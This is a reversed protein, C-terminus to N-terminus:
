SYSMNDSLQELFWTKEALEPESEIDTRLKDYQELERVRLLKRYCKGFNRFRERTSKATNPSTRIMSSLTRLHTSITTEDQRAQTPSLHFYAMLMLAQAHFRHYDKRFQIQYFQSIMESYQQRNFRILGINFQISEEKEDPSLIESFKELYEQAKEIESIRISMAILNKLISGPLQGERLLKKERIAQLTYDIAQQGDHRQNSRAFRRVLQNYILAYVASEIELPCDIQWEEWNLLLSDLAESDGQIIRMLIAILNMWPPLSEISFSRIKQLIRDVAQDSSYPFKSVRSITLKALEFCYALELQDEIQDLQSAFAAPQGKGSQQQILQLATLEIQIESFGPASSNRSSSKNLRRRAKNFENRGLKKAIVSLLIPNRYQTQQLATERILFKETERKLKEALRNLALQDFPKTPFIKNWILDIDPFSHNSSPAGEVFPKMAQYLRVFATDKNQHSFSLWASFEQQETPSFALLLLTVGKPWGIPINSSYIM